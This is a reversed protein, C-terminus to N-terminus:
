STIGTMKGHAKDNAVMLSFEGVVEGKVSDGTLGLRKWGYPRLTYFGIKSSTLMYAHGLPCFRDMLIGLTGYQTNLSKLSIMGLASNEQGVRVFSSTDILDKLDRAISPNCVFLDPNGGDLYILEALDDIDAKAIGAVSTLVNNTIFTGLGGFSRPTAATGVARVGHFAGKELLRIREPIAKQAQYAFEDDIAYQDIAQMSGAVKLGKQSIGTYNFPATIDVLGIYDTDDGELRAMGVINITSTTVHTANTGGYTRSYVTITNSTVNVASVIMYEDDIQIVHGDQFISADTVTLTTTDTTITTGQAAVDSLPEYEDELLEIKYGNQSLRFKSRAADLGGLAVILPTDVPDILQIVNSVV